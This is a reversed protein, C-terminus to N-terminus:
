VTRTLRQMENKINLETAKIIISNTEFRFLGRTENTQIIIKLDSNKAQTSNEISSIADDLTEHNKQIRVPIPKNNYQRKLFGDIGNNRQVPFADISKLIALDKEDKEVYSSSGNKLLNSDSIIMEILRQNTLEIADQSIDIGIFKRNMLKASVCTTGSGCFPDLVLDNEQTSINLIQNLLLVPKQTPYGVRENAKPNLYPIEWIDSLPVGKKEKSLVINGDEDKKYVSKGNEDRERDQLIQDLNTTPSYDTYVTNFKFDQSKSYFYITQHANLLGKKSNSWRKYNWIIESQFNQMGFVEDLAVRIYHSASKDCHFFISGSDKMVKKCNLLVRKIFMIYDELSDWKDCFSYEKTNNRNKLTHEKQTYFPPDMYVLDVSCDDLNKLVQICDGQIIENVSIM